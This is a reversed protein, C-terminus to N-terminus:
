HHPLAPHQPEPRPLEDHQPSALQASTESSYSQQVTSIMKPLLAILAIVGIVALLMAVHPTALEACLRSFRTSHVSARTLKNTTRQSHGAPIKAANADAAALMTMRGLSSTLSAPARRAAVNCLLGALILPIAYVGKLRLRERLEILGDSVRRSITAPSFQMEKAIQTQPHGLLYHAILIRRTESPLESLAQDIYPSLEAWTTDNRPTESHAIERPQRSRDSRLVDLAVHSATRHLWAPVNERVSQPQRMLRFFTEQSVDEALAGDGLVRLATAYVMDAYKQVIQGFAAADRDVAYKQLLSLDDALSSAAKAPTPAFPAPSRPAIPSQDLEVAM